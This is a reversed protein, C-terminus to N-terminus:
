WFFYTKVNAMWIFQKCRRMFYFRSLKNKDYSKVYKNSANSYKQAIYSIRGRMGKETFQSMDIDSIVNAM